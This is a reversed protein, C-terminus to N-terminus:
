GLNLELPLAEDTEYMELLIEHQAEIGKALETNGNSFQTAFYSLNSRAQALLAHLQTKPLVDSPAVISM